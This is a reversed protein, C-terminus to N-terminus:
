NVPRQDRKQKGEFGILWPLLVGALVVLLARLTRNSTRKILARPLAAAIALLQLVAATLLASRWGCVHGDLM